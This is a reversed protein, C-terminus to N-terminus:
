RVGVRPRTRCCWRALGGVPQPGGAASQRGRHSEGPGERGRTTRDQGPVRGRLPGPQPDPGARPVGRVRRRADGGGQGTRCPRGARAGGALRLGGTGRQCRRLAAPRRRAPLRRSHGPRRQRNGGPCAHRAAPRHACASGVARLCPRRGRSGRADGVRGAAMRLEARYYHWLPQSWATGLHDAERQGMEYIADAETFQDTATLARALWLRPHRQAAEGGTVDATYVADRAYRVAEDLHGCARAAVSRAVMGFVTADPQDSRTGLEVAEAGATDMETLDTAGLLAHARVALLQAKLAEPVGTGSLARETYHIVADNRGAHKLAEALGLLLRAEDTVDLGSRLAREGLEAAEEVRGAAALLRVAEAILGPREPDHDDVLPLMRLTLDAATGPATPAVQTVADRLVVKASEDGLRGGRVLHEAAEVTSRREDTVVTAAERHLASRVPGSLADYVAERIIDHRFALEDGHEVLAGAAVADTAGSILDVAPCRLLGAAEHLSFPRGLVAGANLLDRVRDSLGHLHHHVADLFNAPLDDGVASVRGDTFRLRGATRLTTLLEQLLFPNGDSREALALLSADPTADLLHAALAAMAEQDLAELRVPRAGDDVLWDVAAEAARSAGPVPEPRRALLWLVPSLALAPVLVRLALATLEDAWHSDDVVVLLRNDRVQEELAVRLRDIRILASAEPSRLAGLALEPAYGRLVGLMTALPAARDFETARGAAVQIDYRRAEAAVSELVRTKGIGAPGEVVICGGGGDATRALAENCVRITSERGLLPTTESM